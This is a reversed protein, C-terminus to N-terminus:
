AMRRVAPHRSRALEGTQRWFDRCWREALAGGPGEDGRAALMDFTLKSWQEVHAAEDVSVYPYRSLLPVVSMGAFLFIKDHAFYRNLSIMRVLVAHESRSLELAALRSRLYSVGTEFDLDHDLAWDEYLWGIPCDDFFAVAHGLAPILAEPERAALERRAAGRVRPPILEFHSLRGDLISESGGPAFEDLVDLARDVARRDNEHEDAMASLWLMDPVRRKKWDVFASMRPLQM